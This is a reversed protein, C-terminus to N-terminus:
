RASKIAKAVAQAQRELLAIETLVPALKEGHGALAIASRKLATIDDLMVALEDRLRALDEEDM